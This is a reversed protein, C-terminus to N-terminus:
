GIFGDGPGWVDRRAPSLWESASRRRLGPPAGPLAQSPEEDGVWQPAENAPPASVFAAKTATTASVAFSVIWTGWNPNTDNPAAQTNAYEHAAWFSGTVPDITVASFDGAFFPPPFPETYTQVGAKALVAPEMANRPDGAAQGTIYMSMFETPSSELFTMGLAGDTAIDISPFSTNAGAQGPAINGWQTLTPSNTATSLEYFRAHALNDSPLGVTQSAVLRNNRWAVTLIRADNTEIPAGPAPQTSLPPFLYRAAPPLNVPNDTFRQDRVGTTTWSYTMKVADLARGHANFGGAEEVFWVLGDGGGHMAAPTLTFNGAGPRDAHFTTWTRPDGDTATPKNIGVVQVHDYAGTDPTFMNFTFVYADGSYGFRTFDAQYNGGGRAPEDLSVLHTEWDLPNTSPTDTKSIAVNLVNTDFNLIGVVFRRAQEDYAVTVDGFFAGPDQGFFTQLLVTSPATGDRQSIRMATNVTEVIETSSIAVMPDPPTYGHPANPAVTDANALGDFGALITVAPV